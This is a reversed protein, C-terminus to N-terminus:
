HIKIVYVYNKRPITTGPCCGNQTETCDIDITEVYKYLNTINNTDTKLAYLDSAFDVASQINNFNNNLTLTVNNNLENINCSYSM